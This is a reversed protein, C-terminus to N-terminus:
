RSAFGAPEDLGDVFRDIDLTTKMLVTEDSDEVFIMLDIEEEDDGERAYMLVNDGDRSSVRVFPRWEPGLHERFIAEIRMSDRADAGEYIAFQIDRVGEPKAAKCYLRILGKFPVYVRHGGIERDMERRIQKFQAYAPLAATLMAATVLLLLIRGRM